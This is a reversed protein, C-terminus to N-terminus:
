YMCSLTCHICSTISYTTKILSLLSKSPYNHTTCYGVPVPCTSYHEGLLLRKSTNGPQPNNLFPTYTHIYTCATVRPLKSYDVASPLQPSVPTATVLSACHALRTTTSGSHAISCYGAVLLARQVTTTACYHNCLPPQM